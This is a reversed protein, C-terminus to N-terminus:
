VGRMLDPHKRHYDTSEQYAFALAMMDAEGYLSGMFGISTPVRSKANFGNPVAIMPHGTFNGLYLNSVSPTIIVDLDEFLEQMAEMLRTRVRNARLYEVAPVMRARRFTAPWATLQQSVLEDDMNSRTFDDFAAAAEVTLIFGMDNFPLDPFQIPRPDIGLTRIEELARANHNRRDQNFAGELYGIRLKTIDTKSNWNFPLDTVTLDQGDPGMVADLVLACDEVSRCMPGLKDMSWSLAMAGHRSIRGFTPRLGTVGNVTAPSMISGNTESGIAFGVLGAATAAGPGASSGSSGRDPNWPCRTKGGFWVDGQALAGLTLKAVLVAGAEDLRQVVAADTDIVQDKFPMAGWTTPYDKVALLDKAGWPIGHLPGRYKGATIEKDAKRAQTMAREETLTIVCELAPGYRKLRDLYLTTLATSTIKREQIVKALETVPWFALDNLDAPIEPIPGESYVSPKHEKNFVMGPLVPNFQLAPPVDNTLPVERLAKYNKVLSRIGKAIGDREEDTFELGALQEAQGIMEATIATSQAAALNSWLVGPLLTSGLGISSFYGIFARRNLKSKM